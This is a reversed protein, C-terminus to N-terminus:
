CPLGRREIANAAWAGPRHSGMTIQVLKTYNSGWSVREPPKHVGISALGKITVDYYGRKIKGDQSKKACLNGSGRLNQVIRGVNSSSQGSKEILEQLSIGPNEHCIRLIKLASAEPKNKQLEM